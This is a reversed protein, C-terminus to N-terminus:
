RLLKVLNAAAAAGYQNIADWTQAVLPHNRHAGLGSMPNLRTGQVWAMVAPHDARARDHVLRALYSSLYDRPEDWYHIPPCVRNKEATDAITAEMVGLLAAPFCAFSWFLPQLTVRDDEFVPRLAPRALGVAACHVHLTGPSTPVSGDDFVIRDREISRV